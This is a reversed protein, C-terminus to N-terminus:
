RHKLGWSFNILLDDGESMDDVDDDVGDDIEDDGDIWSIGDVSAM